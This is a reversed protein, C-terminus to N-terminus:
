HVTVKQQKLLIPIEVDMDYLWADQICADQSMEVLRLVGHFLGDRSSEPKVEKGYSWPDKMKITLYETPTMTICLFPTGYKVGFAILDEMLAYYFYQCVKEFDRGTINEDVQLSILGTWVDKLRPYFTGLYEQIRPHLIEKEQKLLLAGGHIDMISEKTLLFTATSWDEFIEYLKPNDAIRELFPVIRYNYLRHEEPEIYHFM